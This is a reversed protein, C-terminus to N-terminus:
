RRAILGREELEMVLDRTAALPDVAGPPTGFEDTLLAALAGLSIGGEANLLVASSVDSLLMVHSGSLALARGDRFLIDDYQAVVVDAPGLEVSPTM